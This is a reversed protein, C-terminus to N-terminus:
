EAKIGASRIVGSWKAFEASAFASFQEPTNGIPEVDDRLLRDRFERKAISKVVDQHLQDIM